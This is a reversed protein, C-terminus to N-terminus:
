SAEEHLSSFKINTDKLFIVLLFSLFVIIGDVIVASTWNGTVDRLLGSIVPSLVAGMEGVLNWLGFASGSFKTETNDSIISHSIPQLANFFLSTVFLIVGMIVMSHGNEMLYLGFILTLIAQILTFSSLIIKKGWNKKEFYQALFGGAPFGLLGAIANFTATLTAKLFTTNAAQSIIAVSWFGFFWLNWLIAISSLYLLILNRNHLVPSLERGKRIFILGIFLLALVLEACAVFTNSLGLSNACYYIFYILVLCLFSYLGLAMLSKKLEFASIQKHFYLFFVLSILLTIAGLVIFPMRWGETAGLVNNGWDILCPVILIGLTIGISLGSIVIGMGFSRKKAPTTEIILSRDNSYYTGEGLGVLVRLIILGTLSNILGSLLTFLGASFLSLIIMTRYGFKDGLYGGPFQTLMYGTFLLSGILGSLSYPNSVGNFFSVKNDIMWTLIPGTITRDAYAVVWGLLLFSWITHYRRWWRISLNFVMRPNSLFILSRSESLLGM